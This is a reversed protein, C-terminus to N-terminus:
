VKPTPAPPKEREPKGRWLLRLPTGSLGINDRLAREVYRRYDDGILAPTNCFFVFTPPRIAAQLLLLPPAFDIWL